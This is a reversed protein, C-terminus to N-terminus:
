THHKGSDADAGYIYLISRVFQVSASTLLYAIGLFLLSFDPYIGFIVVVEGCAALVLFGQLIIQLKRMGTSYMFLKIEESRVAELNRQSYFKAVLIISLIYLASLRLGLVEDIGHLIILSGFGAGAAAFSQLLLNALRFRDLKTWGRSDGRVAAILGAFGALGLSFEIAVILTEQIEM